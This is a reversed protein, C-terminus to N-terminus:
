CSSPIQDSIGRAALVALLLREQSQEQAACAGVAWNRWLTGMVLHMPSLPCQADTKCQKWLGGVASRWLHNLLCDTGDMSNVLFVRQFLMCPSQYQMFYKFDLGPHINVLLFSFFFFYILPCVKFLVLARSPSYYSTAALGMSPVFTKILM